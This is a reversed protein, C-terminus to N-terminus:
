KSRLKHDILYKKYNSNKFIDQIIRLCHAFTAGSHGDGCVKNSILILNEDNSCFFIFGNDKPNFKKIWNILQLEIIVNFMNHMCSRFDSDYVKYPKWHDINKPYYSKLYSNYSNKDVFKIIEFPIFNYILRNLETPINPIYQM